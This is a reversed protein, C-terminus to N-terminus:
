TLTLKLIQNFQKHDINKNNLKIKKMRTKKNLILLKQNLNNKIMKKFKRNM